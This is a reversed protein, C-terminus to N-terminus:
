SKKVSQNVPIIRVTKLIKEADKLAVSAKVPVGLLNSKFLEEDYRVKGAIKVGRKELSDKVFEEVDPPSRNIVAWAEKGLREAVKSMKEAILISDYTPDVIVLLIDASEEVGRGVHEIGADTDVLVIEDESLALKGLLSRTVYNIPCACGEFFGTIKGTVLLRIGIKSIAVYGKPIDAISIGAKLAGAINLGHKEKSMMDAVKRRGGLYEVFTKPVAVGLLSHLAPNSEDSDIINVTYGKKSLLIASLVTFSTKGCGGKGCVVIKRKM